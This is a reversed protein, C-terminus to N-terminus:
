STHNKKRAVTEARDRVKLPNNITTTSIV